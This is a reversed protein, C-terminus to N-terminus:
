DYSRLAAILKDLYQPGEVQVMALWAPILWLNRRQVFGSDVSAMEHYGDFLDDSVPAFFDVFALDIEPHGYYVSPDILVPGNATSLFNNQQADGHLLSPRVEPGCLQPLRGRLKEIEPVLDLPLNGSEVAAKLRPALRRGWFFEPWEDLPSNDQYLSGWYCHTELGFREGKISHIQALAQGIQRWHASERKVVNVAEMVLLAGGEVPINGIIAPTLVGSRETLLQLGSIEKEFQDRALSGEGMKVFVSFTGDSLLAAPHSAFDAKDEFNTMRWDRSLYATVQQEVPIRLADTLLHNVFEQM